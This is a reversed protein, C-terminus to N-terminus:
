KAPKMVKKMTDIAKSRVELTKNDTPRVNGATDTTVAYAGAEKRVRNIEAQRENHHKWRKESSRAVAKDLTPYDLDHVGSNGHVGSLGRVGGKFGFSFASVAKPAPKGCSPCPHADQYKDVDDKNLLLEEFEVPCEECIYEFIPMGLCYSV